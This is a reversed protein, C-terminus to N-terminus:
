KNWIMDSLKKISRPTMENLLTDVSWVNDRIIQKHFEINAKTRTALAFDSNTPHMDTRHINHERIFILVDDETMREILFEAMDRKNFSIMLLQTLKEHSILQETEEKIVL